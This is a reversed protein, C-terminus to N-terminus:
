KIEFQIILDNYDKDGGFADDVSIKVLTGDPNIFTELRTDSDFWKSFKEGWYADCEVTFISTMNVPPYIQYAVNQFTHDEITADELYLRRRIRFRQTAAGDVLSRM